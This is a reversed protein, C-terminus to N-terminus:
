KEQKIEVLKLSFPASGKPKLLKEAGMLIEQFKNDINNIEILVEQESLKTLKTKLRRIRTHLNAEEVLKKVYELYREVSKRNGSKLYRRKRGDAEEKKHIQGVGIDLFMGVHDSLFVKDQAVLGCKQVREFLERTLWVHDITRRGPTRTAPVEEMKEHFLNVMSLREFLETMGGKEEVTENFDCGIVIQSGKKIEERMEAELEEYFHKM